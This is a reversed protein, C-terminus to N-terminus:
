PRAQGIPWNPFCLEHRNRWEPTVYNVVLSKRIGKMPRKEYGHWTNTSPVFILASGAKYPANCFLRKNEDYLSTGWNISDEDRSLYILMTFKKVGIDTHPELWFGDGDQAFEVRLNCQSIDTRCVVSLASTVVPSQLTEAVLRCVKFEAQREEDFYSRQDNNVERRGAGYDLREGPSIPLAAAGDIIKDSFVKDMFWLPYPYDSTKASLLSRVFDGKAQELEEDYASIIKSKPM